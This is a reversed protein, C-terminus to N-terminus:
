PSAGKSNFIITTKLNENRSILDTAREKNYYRHAMSTKGVGYDGVIIVKFEKGNAVLPLTKKLEGIQNILFKQKPYTDIKLSEDYVKGLFKQVEVGPENQQSDLAKEEKNKNWQPPTNLWQKMDNMEKQLKDSQTAIHSMETERESEEFDM